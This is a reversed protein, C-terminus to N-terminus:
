SERRRLRDTARALCELYDKELENWPARWCTARVNVVVDVVTAGLTDRHLRFLERVRRRARNRVVAGGTRRTATVGLRAQASSGSQVFIVVHRGVVRVGETYVSQFEHRKRLKGAVRM